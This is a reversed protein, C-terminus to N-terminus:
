ELTITLKGGIDKCGSICTSLSPENPFTTKCHNVCQIYDGLSVGLGGARRAIFDRLVARLDDATVPRDPRSMGEPQREQAAAPLVFLTAAIMLVAFM